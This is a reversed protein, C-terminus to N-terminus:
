DLTELPPLLPYRTHLLQLSPAACTSKSHIHELNITQHVGDEDEEDSTIKADGSDVVVRLRSDAETRHVQSSPSIVM